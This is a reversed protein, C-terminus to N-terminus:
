GEEERRRQRHLRDRRKYREEGVEVWDRESHACASRLAARVFESVAIGEVEACDHVRGLLTPTLRCQLVLTKEEPM